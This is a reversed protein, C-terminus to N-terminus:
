IRVIKRDSNIGGRFFEEIVNGNLITESVIGEVNVPDVRGYWIGCGALSHPHGNTSKTGPPIYIIVNGAYKHGGIHSILGVRATKQIEVGPDEASPPTSLVSFGSAALQSSFTDQLVPGYIGCRLDRNTHGCILVVVSSVTVPHLPSPIESAPVETSPDLPLLHHTILTTLSSQTPLAPIYQFSPLLYASPSSGRPFSSALVSFNTNQFEGKRGLLEKFEGAVNRQGEIGDEIRSPWAATGTCLVVHELYAVMAGHLGTTELPLDKPLVPKPPASCCQTNPPCHPIFPFSPQSPFPIPISRRTSFFRRFIAM